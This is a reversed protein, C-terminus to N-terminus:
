LRGEEALHRRLHYDLGDVNVWEPIEREGTWLAVRRTHKCGNEPQNYEADKCTCAGTDGDVLYRDGEANYVDFLGPEKKREVVVIPETLARIDRKSTGDVRCRATASSGNSTESDTM